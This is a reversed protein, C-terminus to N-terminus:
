FITCFCKQEDSIGNFDETFSNQKNYKKLSDIYVVDIDMKFSVRKIKISEETTSSSVTSYSFITKSKKNSKEDFNDELKDLNDLTVKFNPIKVIVHNM